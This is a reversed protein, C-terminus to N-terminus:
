FSNKVQKKPECDGASKEQPNKVAGDTGKREKMEEPVFHVLIVDVNKGEVSGGFRIKLLSVRGTRPNSALRRFFPLIPEL